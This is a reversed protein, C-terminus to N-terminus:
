SKPSVLPTPGNYPCKHGWPNSEIGAEYTATSDWSQGTFSDNDLHQRTRKAAGSRDMCHARVQSSSTATSVIGSMGVGGSGDPGHHGETVGTIRLQTRPHTSSPRTM